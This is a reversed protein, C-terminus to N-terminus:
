GAFCEPSSRFCLAATASSAAAAGLAEVSVVAVGSAMDVSGALVVPMGAVGGGAGATLLEAVGMGPAATM